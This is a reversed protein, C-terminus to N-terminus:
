SLAIVLGLSPAANATAQAAVGSALAINASDQAAIGSALADVGLVLAAAGSAASTYRVDLVGIDARNNTGGAALVVPFFDGSALTTVPTFQSIKQSAM